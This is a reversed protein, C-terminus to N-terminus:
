TPASLLFMWLFFCHWNFFSWRASLSGTRSCFCGNRRFMKSYWYYNDHITRIHSLTHIKVKSRTVKCSCWSNIHGPRPVRTSLKLSAYRQAVLVDPARAVRRLNITMRSRSSSFGMSSPVSIFLTAVTYSADCRDTPLYSTRPMQDVVRLLSSRLDPNSHDIRQQGNTRNYPRSWVTSWALFTHAASVTRGRSRCM